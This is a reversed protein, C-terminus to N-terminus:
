VTVHPCECRPPRDNVGHRAPARSSRSAHVEGAGVQMGERGGWCVCLQMRAGRCVQMSTGEGSCTSPKSVPTSAPATSYADCPGRTRTKVASEFVCARRPAEWVRVGGWRCAIPMRAIRDARTRHSRRAQWGIAMRAIRDAQTSEATPQSRPPTSTGEATPVNHQLREKIPRQPNAEARQLRDVREDEHVVPQEVSSLHSM